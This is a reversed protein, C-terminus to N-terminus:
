PRITYSFSAGRRPSNSRWRGSRAVPFTDVLAQCRKCPQNIRSFGLQHGWGAQAACTRCLGLREYHRKTADFTRAQRPTEVPDRARRSMSAKM